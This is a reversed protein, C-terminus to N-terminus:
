CRATSHRDEMVPVVLGFRKRPFHKALASVVSNRRCDMDWIMVESDFLVAIQKGDESTAVLEGRFRRIEDGTDRDFWRFTRDAFFALLERGDPSFM